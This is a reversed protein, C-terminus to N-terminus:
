EFVSVGERQHRHSLVCVRFTVDLTEVYLFDRLSEVVHLM